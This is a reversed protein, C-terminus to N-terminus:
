KGQLTFQLKKCLTQGVWVYSDRVTATIYTHWTYVYMTDEHPVLDRESSHDYKFTLKNCYM